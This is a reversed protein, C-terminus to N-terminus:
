LALLRFLTHPESGLLYRFYHLSVLYLAFFVAISLAYMPELDLPRDAQHCTRLM